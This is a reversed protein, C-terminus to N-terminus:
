IIEPDFSDEKVMYGTYGKLTIKSLMYLNKTYIFHKTSSNLSPTHINM